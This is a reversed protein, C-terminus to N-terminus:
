EVGIAIMGLLQQEQLARSDYFIKNRYQAVHLDAM